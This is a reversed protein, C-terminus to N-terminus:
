PGLRVAQGFLWDAEGRLRGTLYGVRAARLWESGLAMWPVRSNPGMGLSMYQLKPRLRCHTVAVASAPFGWFSGRGILSIKVKGFPLLGAKFLYDEELGKWHM